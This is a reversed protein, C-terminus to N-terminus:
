GSASLACLADSMAAIASTAGYFPIAGHDTIPELDTSRRGLCHVSTAADVFCASMAEYALTEHLVGRPVSITGADLQGASFPSTAFSSSPEVFMASAAGDDPSVNANPNLYAGSRNCSAASLAIFVFFEPRVRM